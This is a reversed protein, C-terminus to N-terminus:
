VYFCLNKNSHYMFHLIYQYKVHTQVNQLTLDERHMGHDLYKHIYMVFRHIHTYGCDIYTHIYTYGSVIYTHIHTYGCDIYPYIYTYGSDM